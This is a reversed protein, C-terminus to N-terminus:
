TGHHGPSREAPPAGTLAVTRVGRGLGVGGSRRGASDLSEPCCCGGRPEARVVAAEVGSKRGQERPFAGLKVEPGEEPKWNAEM